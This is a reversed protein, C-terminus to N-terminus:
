DVGSDVIGVKVGHGKIGQSRLMNIGTTIHADVLSIGDYEASIQRPRNHHNDSIDSL